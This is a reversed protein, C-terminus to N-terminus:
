RNQFHKLEDWFMDIKGDILGDLTLDVDHSFLRRVCGEIM